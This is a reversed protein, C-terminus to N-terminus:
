SLRDIQVDTLVGDPVEQAFFIAHIDDARNDQGRLPPNAYLHALKAKAEALYVMPHCGIIEITRTPGVGSSRGSPEVFIATYEFSIMWRKM